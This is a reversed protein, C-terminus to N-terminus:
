AIEPSTKHKPIFEAPASERMQESGFVATTVNEQNNQKM